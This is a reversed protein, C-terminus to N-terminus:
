NIRWNSDYNIGGEEVKILYYPKKQKKIYNFCSATGGKNSGDYVVIGGDYNDVMYRNRKEMCDKTYYTNSVCIVKDSLSLIHRYINKSERPWMKEQNLCPIACELTIPYGKMKLEYIAIAFVQDVGLAMGSCGKHCNAEVIIRQFENKMRIWQPHRMDYGFLRNPRHGTVFISEM